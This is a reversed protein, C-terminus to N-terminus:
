GQADLAPQTQKMQKVRKTDGICSGAFCANDQNQKTKPIHLHKTPEDTADASHM